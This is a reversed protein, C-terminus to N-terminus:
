TAEKVVLTSWDFSCLKNSILDKLRGILFFCLQPLNNLRLYFLDLEEVYLGLCNCADHNLIVNVIKILSVLVVVKSVVRGRPTGLLQYDPQLLDM